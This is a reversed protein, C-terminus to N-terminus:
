SRASTNHQNTDLDFISLIHTHFFTFELSNELWYLGLSQAPRLPSSTHPVFPGITSFMLISTSYPCGASSLFM